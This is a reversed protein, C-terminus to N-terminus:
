ADVDRVEQQRIHWAHAQFQSHWLRQYTSNGHLLQAHSGSAVLRGEELLLIQEAHRVAYLRHAIVLVTTQPYRKRLATYFAAETLSDAFATAEDLVLVPAGALLARAIAIRQREGGSLRTGREGVQTYLGQPLSRVLDRAQVIALVDYLQRDSALPKALRLNQALSGQFLFADQSVVAIAQARDRDGLSALSVEGLLVEGSDPPLLGSLLYALTSKGAGSPGVLANFSGPRLELNLDQLIPRTQYSFSLHQLRVGAHTPLRSSVQVTVPVLLPQIREVGGCIERIASSFFMLRLLPKLLGSGLVLALILNPLPLQGQANLWLGLPLLVFINATLLVVFASWGPVAKRSFGEVLRHYAELRERLLKFSSASQRFAKMVPIGRLYEVTAGNLQETAINYSRVREDMGRSMCAQALWAPIITSLAALAMRWDLWFLFGGAALPTVVAAILEISHHAIFTELREVDNLIIKRLGGSSYRGLMQLPLRTLSQALRLRVEYLIQFAAVHSFYGGLTLLGYKGLLALLVLGALHLLDRGPPADLLALEAARYLLYYLLLELLASGAALSVALGLRARQGALLGILTAMPSARESGPNSSQM